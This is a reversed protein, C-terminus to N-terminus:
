FGRDIYNHGHNDAVPYPEREKTDVEPTMAAKLGVCHHVLSQGERARIARMILERAPSHDRENGTTGQFCPTGM